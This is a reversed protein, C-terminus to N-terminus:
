YDRELLEEVKIANETFIHIDQVQCIYFCIASFALLVAKFSNLAKSNVENSNLEQIVM